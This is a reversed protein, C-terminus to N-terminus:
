QFRDYSGPDLGSTMTLLDRITIAAKDAHRGDRFREADAGGFYAELVLRGRHMVLLSRMRESASARAVLAALSRPVLPAESAGPWRPEPKSSPAGEPQGGLWAAFRRRLASEAAKDWSEDEPTAPAMRYLWSLGRPGVYGDERGYAPDALAEGLDVFRVERRQLELLLADLYDAVLTTAHLLLVHPLTRRLKRRAVADAHDLAALVHDVFARGIDDRAVADRRAVARSYAIALVWDSDDVTVPAPRLGLGHLATRAANRTTATSGEHLMPYRFFATHRDFARLFADCRVADAIWADVPTRNLDRHGAGHNGLAEGWGAWMDLAPDREVARDCVVFGTAPAGHVRLVAAIRELGSQATEGPPAPGSWPLDDMTVAVQLPEAAATTGALALLM